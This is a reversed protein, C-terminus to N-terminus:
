SCAATAAFIRRQGALNAKPLESVTSMEFVSDLRTIELVQRVLNTVNKLRFEIGRSQIQQRLELMMGLGGADVTNVRALDLVVVNAETQALVARRLVETEGRVMRGQLTLVVVNGIKDVQIRLM